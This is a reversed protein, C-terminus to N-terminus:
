CEVARCDVGLVDEGGRWGRARGDGGAVVEDVECWAAEFAGEAGVACVPGEVGGGGERPAHPCAPVHGPGGRGEAYAVGDGLVRPEEAGGGLRALGAAAFHDEDLHFLLEPARAAGAEDVRARPDESGVDM